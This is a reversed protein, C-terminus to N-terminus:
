IVDTTDWGQQSIHKEITQLYLHKTKLVKQESFIADQQGVSM